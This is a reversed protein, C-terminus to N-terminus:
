SGQRQLVQHRFLFQRLGIYMVFLFRHVAGKVVKLSSKGGARPRHEIDVEVLNVRRELLKSTVETSYNLGKAELELSRLVEGDVLKFACNFDRFKTKHFWNCLQGSAWSGFRAFASDAKSPRVGTVARADKAEIADVMAQINEIPFQGDSDILLVWPLTTHSIATALAVAAGQNVALYVPQVETYKEALQALIEATNDRSGDNCVVIEFRKIWPVSRLHSVWSEVVAQISESENYAPAALSIEWNRQDM